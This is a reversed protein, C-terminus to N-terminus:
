GVWHQPVGEATMRLAMRRPWCGALPKCTHQAAKYCSIGTRRLAAATANAGCSSPRAASGARWRSRLALLSTAAPLAHLARAAIPLCIDLPLMQKHTPPTTRSHRM